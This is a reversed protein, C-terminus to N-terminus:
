EATGELFLMTVMGGVSILRFDPILRLSLLLLLPTLLMDPVVVEVFVVDDNSYTHALAEYLKKKKIYQIESYKLTNVYSKIQM